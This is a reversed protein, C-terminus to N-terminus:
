IIITRVLADVSFTQRNLSAVLLLLGNTFLFCSIQDSSGMTGRQGARDRGPTLSDQGLWVRGLTLSKKIDEFVM